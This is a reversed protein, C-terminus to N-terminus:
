RIKSQIRKGIWLFLASIGAFVFLMIVSNVFVKGYGLEQVNIFPYPYYNFLSGRILSYILYLFPFVLLNPISSWKVTSKQEYLYWFVIVCLPIITHLLEDVLRQLGTPEWIHRLAIQYVLGVVTIYITIGTLVGPRNFFANIKSHSNISQVTFYIAVLINILITFFSIFRITTETFSAVRNDIMLFYQSVIAFWTLFTLSYIIAKKM